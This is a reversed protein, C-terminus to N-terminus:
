VTQLKYKFVDVEVSQVGVQLFSRAAGSHFPLFVPM